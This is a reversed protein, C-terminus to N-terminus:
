KYGVKGGLERQMQKLEEVPLDDLKSRHWKREERTVIQMRLVRATGVERTLKTMITQVKGDPGTMTLLPGYVIEIKM